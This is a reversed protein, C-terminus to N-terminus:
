DGIARQPSRQFAHCRWARYLCVAPIEPWGLRFKFDCNAIELKWRWGTSRPSQIGGEDVSVHLNERIAQELRASEAFQERLTATLRQM